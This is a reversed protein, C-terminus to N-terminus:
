TMYQAGCYETTLRTGSQDCGRLGVHLQVTMVHERHKIGARRVRYHGSVHCLAGSQMWDDFRLRRRAHAQRGSMANSVATNGDMVM